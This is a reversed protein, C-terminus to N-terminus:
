SRSCSSGIDNLLRARQRARLCVNGGCLGICENEDEAHRLLLWRRFLPGEPKLRGLYILRYRYGRWPTSARVMYARTRAENGNCSTPNWSSRVGREEKAKRGGGYFTEGTHVTHEAEERRWRREEVEVKKERERERKREEDEESGKVRRRDSSRNRAGVFRTYDLPPSLRGPIRGVSNVKTRAVRSRETCCCSCGHTCKSVRKM